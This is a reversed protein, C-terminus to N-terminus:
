TRAHWDFWFDFKGLNPKRLHRERAKKHVAKAQEFSLWRGPTGEGWPGSSEIPFQYRQKRLLWAQHTFRKAVLSLGPARLRGNVASNLLRQSFIDIKSYLEPTFDRQSILKFRRYGVDRLLFLVALAETESLDEDDGANEAEASIFPPLSRGALDRICLHDNGEIDIKLYLPIGCEDLIESFPRTEVEIAHHKQGLRSSVKQHFSNWAPLGECIWFTGTGATEAIGVNLITLRGSALESRFRRKAADVARPDADIALVRFGQHLYFATDDGNHMGVDYILDKVVRSPAM